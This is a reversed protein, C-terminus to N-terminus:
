KEDFFRSYKKRVSDETNGGGIEHAIRRWKMGRICRDYIIMRTQSDPISLIFTVAADRVRALEEKASEIKRELDVNANGREAVKDFTGSGHSPHPLPSAVLSKGRREELVQELMKIEKNLYRLQELECRTM